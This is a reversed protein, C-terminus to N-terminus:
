AGAGYGRVRASASGLGQDECWAGEDKQTVTKRSEVEFIPAKVILISKFYIRSFGYSLSGGLNSYYLTVGLGEVRRGEKGAAKVSPAASSLGVEATHAWHGSWM